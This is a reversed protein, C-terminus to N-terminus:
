RLLVPKTFKTRVIYGAAAVDTVNGEFVISTNELAEGRKWERVVRPYGSETLSQGDKLDTGVLLVDLSKWSVTSKAEPLFFGGEVFSLTELDFERVVTADAGGRSLKLLMRTPPISEDQPQYLTYGKYVWSENEQLGLADIDVVTDWSPETSKFSELPTRRLIGRKNNQDQWFNYYFNHIKTAYPIKDKSDLIGLIRDYFPTEEPNGLANIIHRNREHVFELAQSGLVEEFAAHEGDRKAWHARILDVTSMKPIGKALYSGWNMAAMLAFKRM